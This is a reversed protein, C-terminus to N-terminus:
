GRKRVVTSTSRSINRKPLVMNFFPLLRGAYRLIRGYLGKDIEGEAELGPLSYEVAKANNLKLKADNLAAVSMADSLRKDSKIKENMVRLNNIEARARRADLASSVAPGLTSQQAISAGAPTSAGGQQYALIPNIGAAEMDAIARQYATSSMRDQFRMQREAAHKSSRNAFWAGMASAAGALWSM